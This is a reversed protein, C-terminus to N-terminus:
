GSIGLGLDLGYGMTCKSTLKEKTEEVKHCNRLGKKDKM